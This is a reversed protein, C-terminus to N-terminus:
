DVRRWVGVLEGPACDVHYHLVLGDRWEPELSGPAAADVQKAMRVASEPPAIEDGCEACVLAESV